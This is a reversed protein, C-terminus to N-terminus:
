NLNENYDELYDVVSKFIDYDSGTPLNGNDSIIEVKVLINEISFIGEKYRNVNVNDKFYESNNISWFLMDNGISNRLYILDIIIIIGNAKDEFRITEQTEDDNQEGSYTLMKRKGFSFEKDIAIMDTGETQEIKKFDLIQINQSMDKFLDRFEAYSFIEKAGANKSEKLNQNKEQCGALSFLLILFVILYKSKM